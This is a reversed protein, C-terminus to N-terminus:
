LLGSVSGIAGVVGLVTVALCLIYIAGAFVTDWLPSDTISFAAVLVVLVPIAITILTSTLAM